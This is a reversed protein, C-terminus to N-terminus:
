RKDVLKLPDPLLNSGLSVRLHLSVRRQQLACTSKDVSFIATNYICLQTLRCGRSNTSKYWILSHIVLVWWRWIMFAKISGRPDHQFAAIVSCLSKIKDFVFVNPKIRYSKCYSSWFRNIKIALSSVKESTFILQM